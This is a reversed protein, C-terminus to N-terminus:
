SFYKVNLKANPYKVFFHLQPFVINKQGFLRIRDLNTFKFKITIVKFNTFFERDGTTITDEYAHLKLCNLLRVFCLQVCSPPM